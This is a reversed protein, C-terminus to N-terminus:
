GASNTSEEHGRRTLPASLEIVTGQGPASQITFTGQVYQVRERMSALGIGPTHRSRKPDFGIGDDEITALLHDATAKLFVDAHRAHAHKGINRLGEQIVRYICLAIDPPIDDPLPDLHCNVPIGERDAFRLCLSRVARVLGLDKLIAPHLERSLAHIDESLHALQEKLRGIRGQFPPENRGVQLELAGAEIAMAALRQTYDDHFGRALRGLEEEQASILRGALTRLEQQSDRLAAEAEKRQRLNILLGIILLSQVLVLVAVGVIYFRYLEWITSERFLVTSGPPLLAEDIGHRQLQRWDYLSVTTDAGAWPLSQPMQGHLIHLAMEAARNGQLRLSILSGGVIGKGMFSESPSFIPAKTHTAISQLVDRSIFSRGDADVSFTSYVIVTDPPLTECRELIKELPQASLDILEVRDRLNGLVQRLVDARLLDNEYSGSVLVVQKTTPKLHLILDMLNRLASTPQLVGAVRDKLSSALIRDRIDEPVLCLVIPTDAFLTTHEMLFNAAPVDVGIVLDIRSASYRHRLLDALAERQQTDRFRSLDLYESFLQINLNNGAFGENLGKEVDVTAPFNRTGSYLIVVQKGSAPPLTEAAPLSAAEADALGVVVFCLCFIIHRLIRVRMTRPSTRM